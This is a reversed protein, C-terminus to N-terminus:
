DAQINGRRIVEGWKDLEARMFAGFAARSDGGPIAGQGDLARRIEPDNLAGAIAAHLKELIPEPTRAPAVFGHWNNADVTPLGVETMTPVDPIWPLRRETGVALARITGARLHPLLIPLDAFGLQVENQLLATTLPAGGRYSVHTVDIGAATRFLEGALHPMSGSGASGYNLKGPQAKAAAILEAVTRYPTAAPVCLPEPVLVGLTIPALDRLPDYPTGRDLRPSIALGGASGIGITYGDPAAKAVVDVGTVGGAGARNDAVVPQGLVATMRPALLRVVIDSPGGAAFPVVVRIPRDPWQPQALAPTALSAAAGGIFTRRKM